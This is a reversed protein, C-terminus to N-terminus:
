AITLEDILHFDQFVYGVTSNRYDVFDSNKRSALSRGDVTINGSTMEELGGVISLLTTKGSGSKGVVFVFGSDDLTFSLNNLAICKEKKSSKYIKTLNEVQIM